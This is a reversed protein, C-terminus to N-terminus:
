DLVVAMRRGCALRERLVNDDSLDEDEDDDCKHDLIDQDETSSVSRRRCSLRM